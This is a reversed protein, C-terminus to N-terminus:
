YSPFTQPWSEWWIGDFVNRCSPQTSHIGLPLPIQDLFQPSLTRIPSCPILYQKGLSAPLSSTSSVEDSCNVRWICSFKSPHLTMVLVFAVWALAFFLFLHNKFWRERFSYGFSLVIASSITQSAWMLFIVTAEYNDGVLYIGGLSDPSWKRCQFWDQQFLTFLAISTFTFNWALIGGASLVTELGLLSTAPRRPTLRKAAKSFPLSFGLTITWIGDLFVFCMPDLNLLLYANIAYVFAEMQGYCIYFTYAAVSGAAACRGERLVEPISTLTRDLSTFSAVISAEATSLSVGVDATKLSGCDNQGDGCMLTIFGAEVFSAVISVKDSPTCRGFIQIRGAIQRLAGPELNQFMEWVEGSIALVIDQEKTATHNQTMVPSDVIDDTDFNIWEVNGASTKRGVLVTSEPRIMAAERAIAVGTLVSDGTIMAARINAESLEQLVARAEERIPNRFNLFGGFVLDCEVDDRTLNRWDVMPDISKFAISLQYIGMKASHQTIQAVDKPAACKRCLSFISEPSGKVIGYRLGSSDQVIVSQTARSNDFEFHKVITYVEENLLVEALKGTSRLRARTSAFAALDVQTGVIDGTHTFSLTHCVAMGIRCINECVTQNNGPCCQVNLLKLSETTLTGTKDFFATDVNAAVLLKQPHICSIRKAQLRQSSLGVAHTFVTPILPHCVAAVTFVVPCPVYLKSSNRRLDLVAVFNKGYFWAFVWQGGLLYFLIPILVAAETMLLALIIAVEEDFVSKHKEFSLVEALLEGKATFSGTALVLALSGEDAELIETGASITYSSHRKENYLETAISESASKKPVPTPEGTLASEDVVIGEGHLIVMDCHATGRRLAVTDGPVIEAASIVKYM